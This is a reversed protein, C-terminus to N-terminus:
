GTQVTNTADAYFSLMLSLANQNKLVHKKAKQTLPHFRIQYMCDNIRAM